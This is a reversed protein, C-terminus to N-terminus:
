DPASTAFDPRDVAPPTRIVRGSPSVTVIRVCSPMNGGQVQRLATERDAAAREAAAISPEAAIINARGCRLAITWGARIVTFQAGCGIERGSMKRCNSVAKAIARYIYAESAAGWSGDASMTVVTWPDEWAQRQVVQSQSSKSRPQQGAESDAQVACAGAGCILVAAVIRFSLCAMRMGQGGTAPTGM